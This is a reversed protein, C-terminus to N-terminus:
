LAEIGAHSFSVSNFKRDPFERLLLKTHWSHVEVGVVEYSNGITLGLTRPDDNSGWQSQAGTKDGEFIVLEGVDAEPGVRASM